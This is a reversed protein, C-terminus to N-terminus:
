RMLADVRRLIDQFTLRAPANDTRLRMEEATDMRQKVIRALEESLDPRNTLLARICEIHVRIVTVDTAAAFQQFSPADVIMAYLGYYQGPKLEDIPRFSTSGSKVSTEVVGHVISDFAQSVEGEAIITTGADFILRESTQVLQELEEDTLFKAIDLKKLTMLSTPPEIKVVDARRSHLEYTEPAIQIGASKLAYHIERFLQERGAFMSLFNPFHVWVTYVYPITSADALRVAPIPKKLLKDCRLAAELLLSKAMAPDVDAPIKIEYWEAYVHNTGHMNNIRQQALTSNPVVVTANDWGRLRTARWNIDIIQGQTGDELEIWDGLRFPHEVSLAIGSFLDGLTKQMAFAILAALAGTSLYIGTVSYDMINFFAIASALLFGAFLLGRQLGPLYTADDDKRKSLVFLEVLRACCWGLVMLLSFLTLANIFESLDGVGLWKHGNYTLSGVLLVALPMIVLDVAVSLKPYRADLPANRFSFKVALWCLTVLAIMLSIAFNGELMEFSSM